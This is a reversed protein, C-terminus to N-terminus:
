TSQRVHSRRKTAEMECQGHTPSWTLETGSTLPGFSSEPFKLPSAWLRVALRRPLRSSLRATQSREPKTQKKTPKTAIRHIQSVRAGTLPCPIGSSFSIGLGPTPVARRAPRNLRATSAAPGVGGPLGLVREASGQRGSFSPRRSLPLAPARNLLNQPRSGPERRALRSVELLGKM